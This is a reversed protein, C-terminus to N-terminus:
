QQNTAAVVSVEKLANIEQPLRTSYVIAELQRIHNRKNNGPAFVFGEVTIVRKNVEDVRTHSYFPGGMSGGNFMKWLGALEACYTENVNVARFSPTHFKLETGAYSGEFEGPLNAKLVSDRRAILSERSLMNKDTYPYSYIVLDKRIRAHDNTIWYFDATKHVKSLETPIDIRIGFLKEVENMAKQNLYNKGLLISRERETDIFYSLIREGDKKILAEMVSDNAAQVKVASQPRSWTNKGFIIKPQEFRPDIEVFLINRTPKLLDSFQTANVQSIDMMPEPQPLNPMDQNFLAVVARGSPAKWAVEDMVILIEFRTGTASPLVVGSNSCSALLAILGLSMCIKKIMTQM